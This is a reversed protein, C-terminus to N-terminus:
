NRLIKVEGNIKNRSRVLLGLINNATLIKGEVDPVELLGIPLVSVEKEQKSLCPLCQVLLVSVALVSSFENLVFNLPGSCQESSRRSNLLSRSKHAQASKLALKM